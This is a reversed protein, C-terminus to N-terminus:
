LCLPVSYHAIRRGRCRWGCLSASGDPAAALLLCPTGRLAAPLRGGQSDGSLLATGVEQLLGQALKEWEREMGGDRGSGPHWPFARGARHLALEGRSLGWGHPSSIKAVAPTTCAMLETNGVSLFLSLCFSGGNHDLKSSFGDKSSLMGPSHVGSCHPTWHRPPMLGRHGATPHAQRRAQVLLAGQVEMKWCLRHCLAEGRAGCQCTQPPSPTFSPPSPSARRGGKQLPSYHLPAALGGRGAGCPGHPSPM